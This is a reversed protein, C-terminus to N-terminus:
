YGKGASASQSQLKATAEAASKVVANFDVKELAKENININKKGQEKWYNKLENVGALRKIIHYGYSTEVIDSIEDIKLAFAATEFEPMMEGSSFTYGDAPQGSDENFEKILADFDEGNKARSLVTEAIAKKDEATAANEADTPNETLNPDEASKLLIHKVTAAETAEYGKLESRDSPYYKDANKELDDEAKAVEQYRLYTRGYQKISPIGMAQGQLILSEKEEGTVAELNTITADKEKQTMQIGNAKAKSILILDAVAKDVAQQKLRDSLKVGDIEKNWDYDALSTVGVNNSQAFEMAEMVMYYDLDLDTITQGEVTAVTTGEPKAAVWKPINLVLLTIAAGILAAIVLSIIVKPMTATIKKPEKVVPLEAEEGFEEPAVPQISDELNAELEANADNIEEKVEEAADAIKESIDAQVKEEPTLNENGQVDMNENDM